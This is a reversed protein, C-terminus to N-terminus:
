RSKSNFEVLKEWDIEGSNLCFENSFDKVFKNIMKSYSDEFEENREKAEFGLPIILDKYLESEGSIYKWFSQGCLKYYDGTMKYEFRHNTKGYCCGNVAKVVITSGSTKLVRRASNFNDIMKKVQSDNGWDPGSKISVINRIGQFDFELDVGPIGSKRGNYVEENVYIALNELWDGFIGEESSSIYAEVIGEVIENAIKVNKAKFLYPNKRKIVDKLRLSDLKEIRKKHFTGINIEVYETVKKILIPNM